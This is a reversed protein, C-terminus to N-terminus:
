ENKKTWIKLHEDPSKFYIQMNRCVWAFSSGSHSDYKELAKGFEILKKDGWFMYGKNEPPDINKFFDDMKLSVAVNYGNILMQRSEASVYEFM